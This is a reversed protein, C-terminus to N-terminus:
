EAPFHCQFPIFSVENGVIDGISDMYIERLAVFNKDLLISAMSLDSYMVFSCFCGFNESRHQASRQNTCFKGENDSESSSVKDFHVESRQFILLCCFLLRSSASLSSALSQGCQRNGLHLPSLSHGYVLEVLLHSTDQFGVRNYGFFWQVSTRNVIDHPAVYLIFWPPHGPTPQATRNSCGNKVPSFKDKLPKVM